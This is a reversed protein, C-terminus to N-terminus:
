KHCEVANLPSVGIRSGQPIHLIRENDNSGPRSQDTLAGDIPWISSNSWKVTHLCIVSALNFQFIDVCLYIYKNYLFDIVERFGVM